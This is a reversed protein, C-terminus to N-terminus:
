NSALQARTEKRGEIYTQWRTARAKVDKYKKAQELTAIAGDLDNAYYQAIGKDYIVKGPNELGGRQIAKSYATVAKKWEEALGYLQGQKVEYEGTDVFKATEAYADVALQYENAAHYNQGIAKWNRENSEVLGKKVGEKLIEAAEFPAGEMAFLSSLQRYDDKKDFMNQRYMLALIALSRQYQENNAYLSALMRWDKAEEPWVEVMAKAIKITGTKDGLENHASLLLTFINRKHEDAAQIALYSPCISEKMKQQQMYIGALLIYGTASPETEYSFWERLFKLATDYNEESYYFNALNLRANQERQIQLAKQELAIEFYRMAQVNQNLNIYVQGLNLALIAKLYSNSQNREYLGKLIELAGQMDDKGMLEMARNMRKHVGQPTAKFPREEPASKAAMSTCNRTFKTSIDVQKKPPKAPKPKADEAAFATSSLAAAILSAACATKLTNIM